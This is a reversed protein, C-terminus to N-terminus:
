NVDGLYLAGGTRLVTRFVAPYLRHEELEALPLWALGLQDGDPHSGGCASPETILQCAFVFEVQHVHSDHAAFEHHAGIYERIHRLEGVRISAGLEEMCERMVAQPLTEGKKQGGGPLSYWTGDEDLHRLVLLEGGRIILAKASNRVAKM